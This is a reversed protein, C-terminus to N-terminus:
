LQWGKLGIRRCPIGKGGLLRRFAQIEEENSFARKPLTAFLWTGFVLLFLRENEVAVSYATWARQVDLTSTRAHVVESHFTVEWPQANLETNARFSLWGRLPTLVDLGMVIALVFCAVTYWALGWFYFSVCGLALFLVGLAKGIARMATTARYLRSAHVADAVTYQYHLTIEETPEM